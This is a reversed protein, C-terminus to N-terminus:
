PVGGNAGALTVLGHERLDDGSGGAVLLGIARM